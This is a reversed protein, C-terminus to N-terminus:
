EEKVRKVIAKHGAVAEDWTSYRDQEDALKGGFVMTEFLIPPGEGWQHDLGLFVTSIESEGITERAVQRDATDHWKAWEYLNLCAVPTKGALIYMDPM